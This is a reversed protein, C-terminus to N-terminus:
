SAVMPIPTADDHPAQNMPGTYADVCLPIARYGGEAIRVPLRIHICDVIVQHPTTHHTMYVTLDFTILATGPSTECRMTIPLGTSPDVPLEEPLEEGEGGEDADFARFFSEYHHFTSKPASAIIPAIPDVDVVSGEVSKGGFVEDSELTQVPGCHRYGEPLAVDLSLLVRGDSIVYTPFTVVRGHGTNQWNIKAYGFPDREELTNMYAHGIGDMSHWPLHHKVGNEIMCISHDFTDCYYIAGNANTAYEHLMDHKNEVNLDTTQWHESSADQNCHIVRGEEDIEVMTTFGENAIQLNGSKLRRVAVPFDIHKTPPRWVVPLPPLDAYKDFGKKGLFNLVKEKLPLTQVPKAPPALEPSPVHTAFVDMEVFDIGRVVHNDCDAVYLIDDQVNWHLGRPRSFQAEEFSGNRYGMYGTAIRKVFVQTAVDYVLIRHHGTDSICLQQKTENLAIGTPFRLLTSNWLTNVPPHTLRKYRCPPLEWEERESLEDWPNSPPKHQAIVSSLTHLWQLPSFTWTHLPASLNDPLYLAIGSSSGMDDCLADLTQGQPYYQSAHCHTSGNVLAIPLAMGVFSCKESIEMTNTSSSMHEVFHVQVHDKRHEIGDESIDDQYRAADFQPEDLQKQIFERLHFLPPLTGPSQFANVVVLLPHCPALRRHAEAIPTKTCNIWSIHPQTRTSFSRFRTWLGLRHM